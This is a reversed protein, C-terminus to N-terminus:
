PNSSSSHRGHRHTIGAGAPTHFHPEPKVWEWQMTHWLCPLGRWNTRSSRLLNSTIWWPGNSKEPWLLLQEKELVLLLLSMVKEESPAVIVGESPLIRIRNKIKSLTKKSGNSKPYITSKTQGRFQMFTAGFCPSCTLPRTNLAMPLMCHCAQCHCTTMPMSTLPMSSLPMITMPMSSLPMITMPMSTL